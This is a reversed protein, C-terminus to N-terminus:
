LGREEGSRNENLKNEMTKAFGEDDVTLVAAKFGTSQKIDLMSYESFVTKVNRSQTMGSIEDRLRDSADSCVICLKAKGSNVALKCADHGLSLKGAKRCLGLLNLAPDSM